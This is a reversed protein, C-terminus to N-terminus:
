GGRVALATAVVVVGLAAADQQEATKLPMVSPLKEPLPLSINKPKKM